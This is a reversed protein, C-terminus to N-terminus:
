DGAIGGYRPLGPRGAEGYRIVSVTVRQRGFRIAKQLDSIYIDIIKGKVLRGTDMVRYIGRHRAGEVQVLTGLPLVSPDAAALGPAAPVGSKTIGKECYATAQFEMEPGQLVAEDGAVSDAVMGETAGGAMHWMMVATAAPVLARRASRIFWNCGKDNNRTM